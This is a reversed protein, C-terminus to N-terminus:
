GARTTSQSLDLISDFFYDYSANETELLSYAREYNEEKVKLAANYGDKHSQTRVIAAIGHKALVEKFQKGLRVDPAVAVVVFSDKRKKLPKTIEKIKRMFRERNIGVYIGIRKRSM